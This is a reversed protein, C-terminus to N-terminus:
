NCTVGLNAPDCDVPCEQCYICQLLADYAAAGSPHASACGDYCAQDLCAGVCDLFGLCDASNLCSDSAAACNGALACGTCGSAADGCSGSNDCASSTGGGGGGQGGPDAAVCSGSVCSGSCCDLDAACANGEPTCCASGSCQGACCEANTTCAAGLDACLGACVHSPHCLGSCCDDDALCPQDAEHCVDSSAFSVGVSAVGNEHLVLSLNVPIGPSLTVLVTDSLWTPVTSDTVVACIAPYAEASFAVLGIPQADLEIDAPLGPTVDVLTTVTTGGVADVRICSVDSPVDTVALRASGINDRATTDRPDGSCGGVLSLAGIAVFPFVARLRPGNLM